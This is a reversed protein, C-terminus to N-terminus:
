INNNNSKNLLKVLEDKIGQLQNVKIAVGLNSTSQFKLGGLQLSVHPNGQLTIPNCVGQKVIGLLEFKSYLNSNSTIFLSGNCDRSGTEDALYIPAGSAGGITECQILIDPNGEYNTNPNSSTIGKMTVPLINTRDFYGGPFGKMLINESPKLKYGSYFNDETIPQYKIGTQKSISFFDLYVACLDIDDNPHYILKIDSPKFSIPVTETLEKRKFFLRIEECDKIVHKNTIILDHSNNTIIYRVFFGTGSRGRNNELLVEIYITNYNLLDESM